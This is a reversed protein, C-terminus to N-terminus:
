IGGGVSTSAQWETLTFSRCGQETIPKGQRLVRTVETIMSVSECRIPVKLIPTSRLAQELMVLGSRLDAGDYEANFEEKKRSIFRERAARDQAYALAAERDWANLLDPPYYPKGHILRNWRVYDVFGLTDSQALTLEWEVRDIRVGHVEYENRSSYCWLIQDSGILERLTAYGEQIYPIIDDNHYPSRTLDVRDRTPDFSREQWSWLKM